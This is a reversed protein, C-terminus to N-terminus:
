CLGGLHSLCLSFQICLSALPFEDTVDNAKDGKTRNSILDDATGDTAIGGIGVSGAM